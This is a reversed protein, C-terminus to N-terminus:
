LWVSVGGRDVALALLRASVPDRMVEDFEKCRHWPRWRQNFVRRMAALREEDSMAESLDARPRWLRAQM